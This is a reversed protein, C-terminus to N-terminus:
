EDYIQSKECTRWTNKASPGVIPGLDGVPCLTRRSIVPNIM